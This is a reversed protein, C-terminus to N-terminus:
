KLETKNVEIFHKDEILDETIYHSNSVKSKTSGDANVHYNLGKEFALEGTAMYVDKICLLEKPGQIRRNM